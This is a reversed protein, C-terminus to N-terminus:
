KELLLGTRLNDSYNGQVRWGEADADSILGNGGGSGGGCSILFAVGGVFGATIYTMKKAANMSKELNAFIRV